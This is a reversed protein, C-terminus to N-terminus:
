LAAEARNNVCTSSICFLVQLKYVLLVPSPLHRVLDEPLQTMRSDAVHMAIQALLTKKAPIKRYEEGDVFLYITHQVRSFFIRSSEHHYLVEGKQM